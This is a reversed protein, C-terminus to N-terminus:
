WRYLHHPGPHRRIHRPQRAPAPRRVAQRRNSATRAPGTIRVYGLASYAPHRGTGATCTVGVLHLGTAALPSITAFGRYKQGRVLGLRASRRFAASRAVPRVPPKGRRPCAVTIAVLQGWRVPSPSVSATVAAGPVRHATPGTPAAAPAASAPPVLAALGTCAALLSAVALSRRV